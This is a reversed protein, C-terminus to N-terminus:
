RTSNKWQRKARTPARVRRNVMDDMEALWRNPDKATLQQINITVNQTPPKNQSGGLNDIDEKGIKKALSEVFFASYAVQNPMGYQGGEFATGVDSAFQRARDKFIRDLQEGLEKGGESAYVGYDLNRMLDYRVRGEKADYTKRVLGAAVGDAIMQAETMGISSKLENRKEWQAKTMPETIEYGRNVLDYIGSKKFEEEAQEITKRAEAYEKAKLVRAAKTAEQQKEKETKGFLFGGLAYAALALKGLGGLVGGAGSIVTGLNGFATGLAGTGNKLGSIGAGVQKFNGMLGGGFGMVDGIAGAGMKGVTQGIKFV